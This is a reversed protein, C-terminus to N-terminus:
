VNMPLRVRFTTGKGVESSVSITGGQLNVSNAVIALGLGTGPITGVNNARHFPEFLREKDELPIGIGEDQIEFIASDDQYLLEFHVTSGPSSYKIANSLLNSLIHRLLKEDLYAYIQACNITPKEERKIFRIIHQNGSSYQLEEVLDHCFKQLDIPTLKLEVKGAEAKALLLVDNLLETMHHVSNQIRHLHTLKKEESWRHSFHEILEASSLIATLPTRFEHSAMSVFRSKLENLEKEKELAKRMDEEVHKRETIDRFYVSLGESSPYFHFELWIDLPSYFSELHTAINEVVAKEGFTNFISDTATSFAEWVKMGILEERSKQLIKEAQFNLYTLQWEKDLALFGDTISELINTLSQQSMEAQIRAAQERALLQLREQEAQKRESIDRLIVIYEAYPNSLKSVTAEVIRLSCFNDSIQDPSLSITHESRHQWQEPRDKIETLFEKLHHKLLDQPNLNFLESAAPNAQRICGNEDVVLITDPVTDLATILLNEAQQRAEDIAAVQPLSTWCAIAIAVFAITVLLVVFLNNGASPDIQEFKDRIIWALTAAGCVLIILIVVQFAVFNRINTTSQRQYRKIWWSAHFPPFTTRRLVTDFIMLGIPFFLGILLDRRNWALGGVILIVGELVCFGLSLWPLLAVQQRRVKGVSDSHSTGISSSSQALQERNLWVGFHLGMLCILYSTDAVMVIRAVDGWLLSFLSIALTLVLAPGLVASRSVVAFVPSVYGDLALQYLVRPSNSVATACSLLTSFAILLTVLLSASQGWFPLGAALLNLFTDEGLAPDTALRMLIWSCGLYIPPILIAAFSLFKLTKAPRKSDGVFSSATECACVAYIAIFYWKAWNVFSLSSWTTPFFGPSQPSFALWSSGQLCLALLFAIAPIVFFTHLIGLARTGSFAVIFAILTFGIKLFIEPVTIGFPALNAKILDTLILANVAPLAAWGWFYGFGVYRSLQPYDKLLRTTYNPTGGSMEPWQEGLRKVQLNLLMGIIIGPVWVFIAASGLAAHMLPATSIWALHGTLGFGWTELPSLSPTLRMLGRQNLLAKSLTM